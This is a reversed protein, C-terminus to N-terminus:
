KGNLGGGIIQNEEINDKLTEFMRKLILLSQQHERGRRKIPNSSAITVRLQSEIAKLLDNITINM